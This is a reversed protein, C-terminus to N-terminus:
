RCTSADIGLYPLCSAFGEISVPITRHREWSARTLCLRHEVLMKGDLAQRHHGDPQYGLKRSIALSAHNHELAGSLAEDADLGAFALHLVAARMETGIGQGQFRRGLWSSTRVQRTVALDRAALNQQGVVTGGRFVTFNLEWDRPTWAGLQRWHYHIVSRAVEAPPADTWRVIFPSADPDHIGEAALDALASLEESTPLRLVLHPTTLRLGVLPFHDILM